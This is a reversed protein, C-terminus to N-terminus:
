GLTMETRARRLGARERDLTAEWIEHQRMREASDWGREAEMLKAVRDIAKMGGDEALLSLRSRGFMWDVLTTAMEARCAYVVEAGLIPLDDHLPSALETASQALEAVSISASGYNELLYRQQGPNLLSQGLRDRALALREHGVLSLSMTRSSRALGDQQVIVNVTDEAMKRFSTLKGGIVSVLGSPAVIVAYERSLQAVTTEQSAILPRLGAFVGVLDATALPRQLYRNAHTLLYAIDTAETIPSELPGNYADDTTGLIVRGRWPILFAVRRDDTEPIVVATESRLVDRKLVLHVGKSPRIQFPPDGDLGATREAWVGTANIVHRAQIEYLRGTLRDEARVGRVSGGEHRIEVARVYNVTVAGHQRATHLVALTLRVDDTVADYYLYAGRLNRTVVTPALQAVEELALVRHNFEPSRAFRDYAWMGVRVGLPALPLLFTPLRVGLPYHLSAYLPILFAQPRVLHPALRLLHSRERLADRVLHFQGRALYRIGGHILKTSRSSTGGAFDAQEILGVRYGRTVADLAVGAGTIGGGIVLVDFHTSLQAVQVARLNNPM